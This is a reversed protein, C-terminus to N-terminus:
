LIRHIVWLVSEGSWGKGCGRAMGMNFAQGKLETDRSLEGDAQGIETHGQDLLRSEEEWVHEVVGWKCGPCVTPSFM